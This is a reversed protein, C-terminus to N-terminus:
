IFLSKLTHTYHMLPPLILCKKFNRKKKQQQEMGKLSLFMNPCCNCFVYIHVIIMQLLENSSTKKASRTLILYNVFRMSFLFIFM